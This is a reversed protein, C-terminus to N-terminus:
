LGEAWSRDTIREIFDAGSEHRYGVGNQQSPHSGMALMRKTGAILRNVWQAHTKLDKVGSFHTSFEGIVEPTIKTVDFGQVRCCDALLPQYPQWGITMHFRTFQDPPNSRDPEPEDSFSGLVPAATGNASVAGIDAVPHSPILNLSDPILNLSDAPATGDKVRNSRSYDRIIALAELDILQRMEETFEPITTGATRENKHPNQHKAFNVINLYIKSGDSYFRVFGSRDLNIALSDLSADDYPLLQVKIRKPRWELNGRYDAITTLGLFLLRGLPENEAMQEHTFFGPKINRSRAM